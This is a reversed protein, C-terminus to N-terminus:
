FISGALNNNSSSSASRANRKLLFSQSYAARSLSHSVATILYDGSLPTNGAKVTVVRYPRLVDPYVDVLIKGSAKFTFASDTTVAAVAQDPDVNVGHLPPLLQGAMDSENEYPPEDGMLSLDGFSSTADSISKDSIALVATSALSPKTGDCTVDFSGINRDKGLLILAPLGDTETVLSKFAGVSKGPQDGPLVYAHMGQRKALRRLLQMATERQVVVPSPTRPGPTTNDIDTEAIQSFEAFVQAAVEHDLLDDFRYVRERQNLIASDDRVILILNSKGPESSKKNDFGVIPGDILPVFDNSGIKIEVRVRHFPKMFPENEDVWSGGADVSIPIELRAEWALDIEQEVTIQEVRNLRDTTVGSDDFFLRYEAKPM